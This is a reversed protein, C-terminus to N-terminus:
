QTAVRISGGSTRLRLGPGGGSLRGAVRQGGSPGDFALDRAVEVTGGSTEADLDAGAGRPVRVVISGGSTEVDGAPAGAFGVAIAGGSTRAEVRAAADRVDISGGSTAIEVAGTVRAVGVAGGSTVARVDGDVDAVDIAGGASATVVRGDVGRVRIEGGRTAITVDGHVEAVDIRWGRSSAEVAYRDPVWVKVDVHAHRFPWLAYVLVRAATDDASTPEATLRVGEREPVLDFAVDWPWGSASAQVRVTDAHHSTVAITGRWDLDLHLTGGPATSVTKEFDSAHAPRSLFLVGLVITIVAGNM